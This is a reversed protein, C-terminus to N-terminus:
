NKMFFPVGAEDLGTKTRNFNLQMGPSEFFFEAEFSRSVEDMVHVTWKFLNGKKEISIM